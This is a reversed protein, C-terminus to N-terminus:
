HVSQSDQSVVINTTNFVNFIICGHILLDSNKRRFIQRPIEIHRGAQPAQGCCCKRNRLSDYSLSM